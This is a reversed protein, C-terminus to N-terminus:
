HSFRIGQSLIRLIAEREQWPLVANPTLPKTGASRKLHTQEVFGTTQVRSLWSLVAEKNGDKPNPDGDDQAQVTVQSEKGTLRRKEGPDTRWATSTVQQFVGHVLDSWPQLGPMQGPTFAGTKLYTWSGSCGRVEDVLAQGKMGEVGAM